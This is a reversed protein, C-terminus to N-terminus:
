PLMGADIAQKIAEAHVGRYENGYEGWGGIGGCSPLRRIDFTHESSDDSALESTGYWFERLADNPDDFRRVHWITVGNHTLFVPPEM